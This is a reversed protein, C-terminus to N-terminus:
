PRPMPVGRTSSAALSLPTSKCCLCTWKSRSVASPVCVLLVGIVDVVPGERARKGVQAGWAGGSGRDFELTRVV